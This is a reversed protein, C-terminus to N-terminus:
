SEERQFTGNRIREYVANLNDIELQLTGNSVYEALISSISYTSPDGYIKRLKTTNFSIGSGIYVNAPDIYLNTDIISMIRTSREDLYRSTLAREYYAPKVKAYSESAYAEFFLGVEQKDEEPLTIPFGFFFCQDQIYSIYDEQAEDYKPLPLIGYGLGTRGMDIMASTEVEYLRFTMMGATGNEFKSAVAKNGSTEWKASSYSHEDYLLTLFKDIAGSCRQTNVNLQYLNNEDKTVVRLDAASMFCDQQSSGTGVFAIYGYVTDNVNGRDLYIQTTLEAAKEFTWKQHFVLEYPDEVGYDNFLTRNYYMVMMYRYFSISFRGTILFQSKGVSLAENYGQSYYDKAPNVADMTMIDALLNNIALKCMRHGATVLIQNEYSGSMVMNTAEALMNDTNTDGVTEDAKIVCNYKEELIKNRTFVAEDIINGNPETEFEGQAYTQVLSKITFVDNGFNLDAPLDAVDNKPPENSGGSEFTQRTTTPNSDSRRNCSALTFFMSLLILGCGIKLCIKM